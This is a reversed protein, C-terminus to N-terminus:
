QDTVSYCYYCSYILELLPTLFDSPTTTTRTNVTATQYSYPFPTVPTETNGCRSLREMRSVQATVRAQLALGNSQQLHPTERRRSGIEDMTERCM